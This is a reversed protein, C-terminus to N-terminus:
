RASTTACFTHLTSKTWPQRALVTRWVKPGLRCLPGFCHILYLCFESSQYPPVGHIRCFAALLLRGVCHMSPVSGAMVCKDAGPKWSGLMEFARAQLVCVSSLRVLQSYERLWTLWVARKDGEQEDASAESGTAPVEAESEFEIVGDAELGLVSTLPSLLDDDSAPAPRM